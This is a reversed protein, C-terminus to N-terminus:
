YTVKVGVYNLSFDRSTNGAVDIVRVRFGADNLNTVTWSRGWTDAAGGLTYDVLSTTLTATNKAATWTVGGDWSLQVCIKPAGKTNDARANLKVEIGKHRSEVKVANFISPLRDKPFEVDFTSGIVQTVRGFSEPTTKSLPTATTPM